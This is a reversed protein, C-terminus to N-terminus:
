FAKKRKRHVEYMLLAASVAANLSELEGEMPIKVYVDALRCIKESLGNAENGIMIGTKGEFTEETYSKKGALHAACIRFKDNKLQEVTTSFDDCIFYPMRFMAGMTARVVKPNFLDVCGKSLVVGSMGAGEATRMMTGLNGPDQIDELLLLAEGTSSIKHIDYMPMEVLAIVGQPSVTDSLEQFLSSSLWEVYISDENEVMAARKEWELAADVSVYVARVLHNKVAEDLMKWGEAVFMREERRFRANKILKKIKKIQANSSSEIV